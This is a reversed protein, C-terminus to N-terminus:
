EPVRGRAVRPLADRGAEVLLALSMVFDDHGRGPPTGFDLLCNPRYHGRVLDVQHWFEAAEASGDGAYM